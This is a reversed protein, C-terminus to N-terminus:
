GALRSHDRHLREQAAETTHRIGRFAGLMLTAGFLAVVAMTFLLAGLAVTGFFVATQLNFEFM